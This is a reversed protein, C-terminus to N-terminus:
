KGKLDIFINAPKIDRHIIGKVHAAELALAIERFMEALWMGSLGMGTQEVKKEILKELTTGEIYDMTFYHQDGVTGIDYVEVINPHKIQALAHAERKFRSVQEENVGSEIMMVKIAVRRDLKPDHALYVIGMGGKGIEEIIEYKGLKDSMRETFSSGFTPVTPTTTITRGMVQDSWPKVQPSKLIQDVEESNTQRLQRIQDSEWWKCFEDVSKFEPIDIKM